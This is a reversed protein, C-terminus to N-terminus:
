AEEITQVCKAISAGNQMAAQLAKYEKEYKKLLSCAEFIALRTMNQQQSSNLKKKSRLLIRQLDVLDATQGIVEEYQMAEAAAGALAVVALADIENDELSGEILRRQLKAEAFDTHAQGINLSYATVPVGFIYGALLHAAEHRLVRERYDPYISSFKDIFFQLLGPATSGTALVAISIGGTLYPVFFGWDGPLFGAAVAVVSTVGVVSFLFAKDNRISAVGIGSPNLVGVRKLDGLFVNRRDYPEELGAGWKKLVGGEKLANMAQLIDGSYEYKLSPPARRLELAATELANYLKKADEAVTASAIVRGRRFTAARLTTKHSIPSFSLSQPLLRAPTHLQQM